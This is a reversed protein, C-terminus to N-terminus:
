SRPRRATPHLSTDANARVQDAVNLHLAWVDCSYSDTDLAYTMGASETDPARMSVEDRLYPTRSPAGANGGEAHAAAAPSSPHM